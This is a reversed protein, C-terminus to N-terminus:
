KEFRGQAALCAACPPALPPAALFYSSKAGFSACNGNPAERPLEIRKGCTPNSASRKKPSFLSLLDLWKFVVGM